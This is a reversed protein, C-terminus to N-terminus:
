NRQLPRPPAPPAAIEPQAPAGGENEWVGLAIAALASAAREAMADHM